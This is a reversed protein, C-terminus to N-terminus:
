EANRECGGKDNTACAFRQGVRATAAAASMTQYWRCPFQGTYPKGTGTWDGNQCTGDEHNGHMRYYQSEWSEDYTKDPLACSEWSIMGDNDLVGHPVGFCGGTKSHPTCCNM